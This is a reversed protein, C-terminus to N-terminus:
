IDEECCCKAVCYFGFAFVARILTSIWRTFQKKKKKKGFKISNWWVSYAASFVILTWLFFYVFLGALPRVEFQPLHFSISDFLLCFQLCLSFVLVLHLDILQRRSWTEVTTRRVYERKMREDTSRVCICMHILLLRAGTAGFSLLSINKLTVINDHLVHVVVVVVVSFFLFFIRSSVCLKLWVGVDDVICM